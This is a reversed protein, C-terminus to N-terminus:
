LNLAIPGTTVFDCSITVVEEKNTSYSARSVIGNFVISKADAESIYLEFLAAGTDSPTNIAEIFSTDNGSYLLAISGSGSIKGGVFTSYLSNIPTTERTEKDMSLDWSVVQLITAASSGTSNFKVSGQYGYYYTM